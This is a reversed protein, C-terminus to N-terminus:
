QVGERNRRRLEDYVSPPRAAVPRALEVLSSRNSRRLESYTVRTPGQAEARSAAPREESSPFFAGWEQEAEGGRSGGAGPLWALNTPHKELNEVEGELNDISVAPALHGLRSLGRVRRVDAALASRPLRALAKNACSDGYMLGGGLHGLLLGAAWVAPRAGLWAHRAVLGVRVGAVGCSALAAYLPLRRRWFAESRCDAMLRREPLTGTDPSAPGPPAAVPAPDLGLVLMAGDGSVCRM